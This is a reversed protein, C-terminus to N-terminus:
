KSPPQPYPQHYATANDQMDECQRMTLIYEQKIHLKSIVIIVFHLIDEINTLWYKRLAM